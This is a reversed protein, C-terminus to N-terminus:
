DLLKFQVSGVAMSDSKSGNTIEVDCVGLSSGKRLVEGVAVASDTVPNLFRIDLDATALTVTRPSELVSLLAAGGAVDILSALVGGHMTGAPNSLKDQGPIAIEATGGGVQIVSIDLWSNFPSQQFFSDLDEESLKNSSM